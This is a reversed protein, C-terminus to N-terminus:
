SRAPASRTAAGCLARAPKPERDAAPADRWLVGRRDRSYARGDVAGVIVTQSHRDVAGCVLQHTRLIEDDIQTPYEINGKSERRKLTAGACCTTVTNVQLEVAM